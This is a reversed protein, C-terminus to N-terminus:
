NLHRKRIHTALIAATEFERGCFQCQNKNAPLNPIPWEDVEGQKPQEQQEVTKDAQDAMADRCNMCTVRDAHNTSRDGVIRGRCLPNIGDDCLYHIVKKQDGQDAPESPQASDQSVANDGQEAQDAPENAQASDQSIAKFATEIKGPVENMWQIADADLASKSFDIRDCFHSWGSIFDKCAKLLGAVFINESENATEGPARAGGQDGQQEQEAQSEVKPDHLIVPVEAGTQYTIMDGHENVGYLLGVKFCRVAASWLEDGIEYELVIQRNPKVIGRLM